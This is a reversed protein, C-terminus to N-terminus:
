EGVTVNFYENYEGMVVAKIYTDLHTGRVKNVFLIVDENLRMKQFVEENSFNVGDWSIYIMGVGDVSMIITHEDIEFWQYKGIVYYGYKGM